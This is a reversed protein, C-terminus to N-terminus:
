ANCALHLICKGRRVKTSIIGMLSLQKNLPFSRATMRVMLPSSSSYGSRVSSGVSNCSVQVLQSKAGPGKQNLRVAQPAKLKKVFMHM